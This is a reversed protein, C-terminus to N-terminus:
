YMFNFCQNDIDHTFLGPNNEFCKLFLGPKNVCLISLWHKLKEHILQQIFNQQPM